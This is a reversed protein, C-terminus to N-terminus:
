PNVQTSMTSRIHEVLARREEDVKKLDVNFYEALLESTPTRIRRYEGFQDAQERKCLAVRREVQLWELFEGIVRYQDAVKNLKECEPCEPESM